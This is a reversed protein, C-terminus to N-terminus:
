NIGTRTCPVDRAPRESCSSTFKKHRRKFKFSLVRSPINGRGFIHFPDRPWNRPFRRTIVAEMEFRAYWVSRMLLYRSVSISSTSSSAVIQRQTCIQFCETFLADNGKAHLIKKFNKKSCTCIKLFFDGIRKPYSFPGHGFYRCFLLLSNLHILM